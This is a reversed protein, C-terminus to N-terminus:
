LLELIKKLTPQIFEPNTSNVHLLDDSGIMVFRRWCEAENNDIYSYFSPLYTKHEDIEVYCCDGLITQNNYFFGNEILFDNIDEKEMQLFLIGKNLFVHFIHVPYNSEKKKYIYPILFM